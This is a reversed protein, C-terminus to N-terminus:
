GSVRVRVRAPSRVPEDEIDVPEPAALMEDAAWADGVASALAGAVQGTSEAGSSEADAMAAVSGVTVAATLSTAILRASTGM